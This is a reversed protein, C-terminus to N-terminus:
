RADRGAVARYGVGAMAGEEGEPSDEARGRLEEVLRELQDIEQCSLPRAELVSRVLALSDGGFVRSILRRLLPQVTASRQRTPTYVFAKGVLAKQKTVYGREELRNLLTAVSSHSLPRYAIIGERIERATARGKHQLFSLVDLEADPLREHNMHETGFFPRCLFSRGDPPAGRLATVVRMPHPGLRESEHIM